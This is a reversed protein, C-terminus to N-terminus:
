ALCDRGSGDVLTLGDERWAITLRKLLLPQPRLLRPACVEHYFKGVVGVSVRLGFVELIRQATAGYTLNEVTLWQVIKERDDAKLAGLSWDPRRRPRRRRDPVPSPEPSLGVAAGMDRLADRVGCHLYNPLSELSWADFERRNLTVKASPPILRLSSRVSRTSRGLLAAIQELTFTHEHGPLTNM